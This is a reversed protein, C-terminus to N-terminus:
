WTSSRCASTGALCLSNTQILWLSLAHDGSVSAGSSASLVLMLSSWSLPGAGCHNSTSSLTISSIMDSFLASHPTLSQNHWGISGWSEMEIRSPTTSFLQQLATIFLLLPSSSLLIPTFSTTLTVALLSLRCRCVWADNLESMLRFLGHDLSIMTCRILRCSLPHPSVCLTLGVLISLWSNM